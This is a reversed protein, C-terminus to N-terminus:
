KVEKSRKYATEWTVYHLGSIQENTLNDMEKLIRKYANFTTKAQGEPYPINKIDSTKM